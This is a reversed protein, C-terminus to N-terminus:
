IAEYNGGFIDINFSETTAFRDMDVRIRNDSHKKLYYQEQKHASIMSAHQKEFLVEHRLGTRAELTPLWWREKASNSTIGIKWFELDDNYMRIYYMIGPVDESYYSVAGLGKLSNIRDIEEQPKSNITNQWNDQRTQWVRTGEEKGHKIICKELSFTSQRQRRLEVAEEESYGRSLYYSLRTTYDRNEAAKKISEKSYNVSGKSFPSYKGEHNRFPNFSERNNYRALGERYGYMLTFKELNNCYSGYQDIFDYLKIFQAAFDSIDDHGIIMKQLHQTKFLTFGNRLHHQLDDLKKALIPDGTEFKSLKIAYKKDSYYDPIRENM